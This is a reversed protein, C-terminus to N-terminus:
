PAFRLKLRSDLELRSFLGLREKYLHLRSAQAGLQFITFSSALGRGSTM